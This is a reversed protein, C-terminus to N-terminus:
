DFITIYSTYGTRDITFGDTHNNGGVRGQLKITIPVGPTLGTIPFNGASVTAAGVSGTIDDTTASMSLFSGVNTAGAIVSVVFWTQPRPTGLPNYGAIAFSLYVTSHRPTFTLTAGTIDVLTTSTINQSGAALKVSQINDGYVYRASMDGNADVYVVRNTTSNTQNTTRGFDADGSAAMDQVRITQITADTSGIHLRQLPDITAIGVNGGAIIRMKETYSNNNNTFFRMDGTVNTASAATLYSEISASRRENTAQTAAFFLSGVRSTNATAHTSLILQSGVSNGGDHVHLVSSNGQLNMVPFATGIGVTPYTSNMIRMRNENNTRFQLHQADITGLFNDTPNTGLNGLIKWNENGVNFRVWNPAAGTGANYYYGPVVATLGTGATATNYVMLSHQPLTIPAAANTATLAVRPILLGKNTSEVDLIASADPNSGTANIGVNQALIANNFTFFSIMGICLIPYTSFFFLKIKLCYNATM